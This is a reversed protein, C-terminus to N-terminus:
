TRTAIKENEGWVRALTAQITKELRTILVSYAAVLVQGAKIKAVIARQLSVSPFTNPFRNDL